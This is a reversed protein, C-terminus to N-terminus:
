LEELIAYAKDLLKTYSEVRITLPVTGPFEDLVRGRTILLAQIMNAHGLLNDYSFWYDWSDKDCSM